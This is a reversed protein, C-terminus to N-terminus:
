QQQQTRADNLYMELNNQLLNCVENISQDTFQAAAATFHGGGNLKEMLMQVNITGDSRASIATEKVSTRGIVFCANIGKIQIAESAVIALMTKSIIDNQEAMAIIVGYSPTISNSLIKNKLAYEEYEEKLFYDAKSNDAGYDKLVLSADYTTAGTKQRYYNTDLLIGALMFTAKREDMDVHKPSYKIIETVLESASSASPEIQFFVPPIDVYEEGRRHHDIIAVREAKDLVSSAMVISPRHVDTLILLSNNGIHYNAQKVTYTMEQMEEKTFLDKFAKKTKTEVLKEDYVIHVDNKFMKAFAYLGLASGIADLDADIHGMIVINKASQILSALSSSLFRAKVRSKNTKAESSGGIFTFNGGYPSLVAQDGGRSLAVDLADSAMESLKVVDDFGNSFGISLTVIADAFSQKKVKNMISFRDKILQEYAKQDCVVFYSDNKIKKILLNFKRAYDTIMQNINFIIDNGDRDVAMSEFDSFNDISIIGIVPAHEKSYRVVANYETIDKFIFLNAEKLLKVEYLKGEIEVRITHNETLQGGDLDKLAKLEERWEFINIDMITSELAAFQDNVWIINSNEDTVILGIKGFIYAEQIDEGVIDLARLDTKYKSKSINTLMSWFLLVDIVIFSAMVGILLELHYEFLNLAIAVYVASAIVFQLFFIILVKIMQRKIVKQM